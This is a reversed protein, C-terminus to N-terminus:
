NFKKEMDILKETNIKIASVLKDITLNEEPLKLLNHFLENRPKIIAGLVELIKDRNPFDYYKLRSATAELNTREDNKIKKDEIFYGYPLLITDIRITIKRFLLDAVIEAFNSLIIAATIKEIRNSSKSLKLAYQVLSNAYSASELANIKKM